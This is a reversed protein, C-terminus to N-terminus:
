VGLDVNIMKVSVNALVSGTRRSARTFEFKLPGLTLFAPPYGDADLMRITDFLQDLSECHDLNGDEPQRRKFTVAEGVQAQPAPRDRIIDLIMEGIIRAARLFIEEASGDLGLPRKLYVDGADMEEVCRLATIKTERVGRAILNQLPSGGRGFPLDTMHFVVCEFGEYIEPPIRWSWHPLFVFDPAIAKLAEFTLDEKCSILQFEEGTQESLSKAMSANWPRASAIVYNM